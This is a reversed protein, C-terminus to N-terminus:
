HETIFNLKGKTLITGNKKAIQCKARTYGNCCVANKPTKAATLSFKYISLTTCM